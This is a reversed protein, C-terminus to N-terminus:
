VIIITKKEESHAAKTLIPAARLKLRRIAEKIQFSISM